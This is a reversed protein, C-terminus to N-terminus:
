GPRDGDGAGAGVSVADAGADVERVDDPGGAVGPRQVPDVVYFPHSPDLDDTIAYAAGDTGVILLRPDDSRLRTLSHTSPPPIAPSSSM